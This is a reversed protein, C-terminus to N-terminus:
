KTVAAKRRLWVTIKGSNEGIETWPARCRLYLDGDGPATFSGSKGLEFAKSLEYDKLLVGDLRGRGDAAGDADVSQADKGASWTGKARYEYTTGAKVTLRSPQWGLDAKIVVSLPHDAPIHAVFKQKWDWSCLDIRFGQQLHALAFRFEFDLEKMDRAFVDQFTVNQHALVRKGFDRYRQWYNANNDLFYCLFWWWCYDEWKGGRAEDNVILTELKRPPCQRLYYIVHPLTNVGKVGKEWYHGMEAMGEAYWRPGTHGFAQDCYAHVAEHLPTGKDQVDKGDKGYHYDHEAVTYVRAKGVFRKGLSATTGLCVGAGERIKALGEPDMKAQLEQPWANLDKVVWCEIVGRSPRGWYGSVLVLMAELRKLLDKAKDKSLDTHLLFNKSHYDQVAGSPDKLANKGNQPPRAAVAAAPLLWLAALAAALRLIRGSM